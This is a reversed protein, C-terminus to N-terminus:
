KEKMFKEPVTNNNKFFETLLFDVLKSKNVKKNELITNLEKDITIDLKPKTRM